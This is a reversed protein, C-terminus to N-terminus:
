AEELKKQMKKRNVYTQVFQFLNGIIWYFAIGLNTFAISTLMVVMFYTMFKMTKESQIQQPTKPYNKNKLYNPRKMAYQQYFYMTLGVILALLINIWHQSIDFNSTSPTDAAFDMFLFEFNIGEVTHSLDPIGKETDVYRDPHAALPLRRVVQYMAIFIPMQLFPLLCGLPNINYKKYIQMMEQQYMRQSAEDKKNQYKEKLSNLDPQALQMNASMATSKSYIPWGVIRVILTLLFLGVIYQGGTIRTLFILFDGLWGVIAQVWNFGYGEVHVPYDYHDVNCGSLVFVSVLVVAVLLYKRYQNFM